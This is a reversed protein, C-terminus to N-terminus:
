RPAGVQVPEGCATCVPQLRRAEYPGGGDGPGMLQPAPIHWDPHNCRDTAALTRVMAEAVAKAADLDGAVPVSVSAVASGDELESVNAMWDPGNLMETPYPADPNRQWTM